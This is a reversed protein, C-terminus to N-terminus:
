RELAKRRREFDEEDIEGAAFRERLTEMADRRRDGSGRGNDMLWKVAFVILAIILGWFVLMVLGGGMGYGNGWMM